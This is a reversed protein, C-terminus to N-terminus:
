VPGPRGRGGGGGGGGGFGGRPTQKGTGPPGYMLVGRPPDIGIQQYLEFHTLPLEVAEKMEQKQIDLGGIDAYTEVPKETMQMASITSDAEPPLLDVVSNSYRHLAVSANPKLLERNLTSLIKVYYTSGTTSSIIGSEQDIMEIFQGIVLPVCQIRKVEEKARLLERKLNKQEDKVYDEQITIYELEGQMKKLKV